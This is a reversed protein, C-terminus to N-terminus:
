GYYASIPAKGDNVCLQTGGCTEIKLATLRVIVLLEILVERSPGRLYSAVFLAVIMLLVRFRDATFVFIPRAKGHDAGRVVPM